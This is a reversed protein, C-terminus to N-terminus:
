SSAILDLLPMPKGLVMEPACGLWRDLLTAYVSRFDTNYILDGDGLMALSPYQGALGGKVKSGVLFM